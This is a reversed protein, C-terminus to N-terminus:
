WRRDQRRPASPASPGSGFIRLRIAARRKGGGQYDFFLFAAEHHAVVVTLLESVVIELLLGASLPWAAFVLYAPNLPKEALKEM